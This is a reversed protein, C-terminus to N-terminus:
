VKIKACSEPTMDSNRQRAESHSLAAFLVRNHPHSTMHGAGGFPFHIVTPWYYFASVRARVFTCAWLCLMIIVFIFTKPFNVYM